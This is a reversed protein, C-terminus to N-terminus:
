KSVMLVLHMTPKFWTKLSEVDKLERTQCEYIPSGVSRIKLRQWCTKRKWRQLIFVSGWFKVTALCCTACYHQRAINLLIFHFVSWHTNHISHLACIIYLLYAQQKLNDSDVLELAACDQWKEWTDSSVPCKFEPSFYIGEYNMDQTTHQVHFINVCGSNVGLFCSMNLLALFLFTIWYVNYRTNWQKLRATLGGTM